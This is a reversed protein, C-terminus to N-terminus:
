PRTTASELTQWVDPSATLAILAAGSRPATGSLMVVFSATLMKLLKHCATLYPKFSLTAQQDCHESAPM